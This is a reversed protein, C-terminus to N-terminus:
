QSHAYIEAADSFAQLLYQHSPCGAARRWLHLFRIINIDLHHTHQSKSKSRRSMPSVPQDQRGQIAYVASCEEGKGVRM